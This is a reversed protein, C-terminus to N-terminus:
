PTRNARPGVPWGRRPEGRTPTWRPADERGLAKRTTLDRRSVTRNAHQRLGRALLGLGGRNRTRDIESEAQRDASSPREAGSRPAGATALTLVSGPRGRGTESRLTPPAGHGTRFFRDHLMDILVIKQVASTPVAKLRTISVDDDRGRVLGAGGPQLPNTGCEDELGGLRG